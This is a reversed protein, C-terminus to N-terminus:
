MVTLWPLDTLITVPNHALYGHLQPQIGQLPLLDTKELADLSARPSM